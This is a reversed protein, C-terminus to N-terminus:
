RYRKRPTSPKFRPQTVPMIEHNRWNKSAFELITDRDPWSQKRRCVEWNVTRWDFWEVSYLESFALTTFCSVGGWFFYDFYRFSQTSRSEYLMDRTLWKILVRHILLIFCDKLSTQLVRLPPNLSCGKTQCRTISLIPPLFNWCFALLWRCSMM